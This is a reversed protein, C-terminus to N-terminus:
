ECVLNVGNDDHHIELPITGILNPNCAALKNLISHENM